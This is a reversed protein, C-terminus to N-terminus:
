GRTERDFTVDNGMKLEKTDMQAIDVIVLPDGAKARVRFTM